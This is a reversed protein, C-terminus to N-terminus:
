PARPGGFLNRANKALSFELCTQIQDDMTILLVFHIGFTNKEYQRQGNGRRGQGGVCGSLSFRTVLNSLFENIRLVVAQVEHGVCGVRVDAWDIPLLDGAQLHQAAIATRRSRAGTVRILFGIDRHVLAVGFIVTDARSSKEVRVEATSYSGM